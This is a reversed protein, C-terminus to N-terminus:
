PANVRITVVTAAYATEKLVLEVDEASTAELLQGSVISHQTALFAVLADAKEDLRGLSEENDYLGEVLIISGRLDPRSLRNGPEHTITPENFPGVYAMPPHFSAPRATYAQRLWEPHAARFTEILSFLAARFEVRLTAIAM